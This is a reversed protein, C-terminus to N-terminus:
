DVEDAACMSTIVITSRTLRHTCDLVKNTRHLRLDLWARHTSCVLLFITQLHPYLRTPTMFENSRALHTLAPPIMMEQSRALIFPPLHWRVLMYQLGSNMNAFQDAAPECDQCHPGFGIFRYGVAPGGVARDVVATQALAADGLLAATMPLQTWGFNTQADKCVSPTGPVALLCNTAPLRSRRVGLAERGVLFYRYPHVGFMQPTEYGYMNVTENYNHPCSGYPLVSEVAAAAAAQVPVDPFLAQFAQWEARQAATIGAVADSGNHPLLLVRELLVHLAVVTPTDDEICNTSNPPHWQAAPERPMRACTFNELAQTPWIKIRGTSTSRNTYHQRFFDLTLSVIPFYRALM